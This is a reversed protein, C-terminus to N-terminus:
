RITHHQNRQGLARRIGFITRAVSRVMALDVVLRRTRLQGEIDAPLEAPLERPASAM